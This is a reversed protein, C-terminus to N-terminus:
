PRECPELSGRSVVFDWAEHCARLTMLIVFGSVIFFLHVAMDGSPFDFPFRPTAAYLADYRSTYHFIVVWMAAIGRIADLEEFRKSM